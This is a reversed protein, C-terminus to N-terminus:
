SSSYTALVLLLDFDISRLLRESLILKNKLSKISFLLLMDGSIPAM